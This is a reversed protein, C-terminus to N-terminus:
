LDFLDHVSVDLAKALKGLTEVKPNANGTEIREINSRAVGSQEVLAKVTMKKSKRIQRVYSKL